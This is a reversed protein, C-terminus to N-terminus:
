QKEYTPLAQANFTAGIAGTADAPRVTGNDIFFVAQENVPTTYPFEESTGRVLMLIVHDGVRLPRVGNVTIPTGDLLQAEQEVILADTSAESPLISQVDLSALQTRVGAEPNSPDSVSRGDDVATVLGEVVLDSAAVLDEIHEYRPGEARIDAPQIADEGGLLAVATVVAVVVVIAVPLWRSLRNM